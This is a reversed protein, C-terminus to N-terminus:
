GVWIDFIEPWYREPIRRVYFVAGLVYLTAGGAFNAFPYEISALEYCLYAHVIPLFGSSGLAIFM